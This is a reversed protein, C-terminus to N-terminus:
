NGWIHEAVRLRQNDLDIIEIDGPVNRQSNNANNNTNDTTRITRSPIRIVNEGRKSRDNQFQSM